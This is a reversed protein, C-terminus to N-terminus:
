TGFILSCGRVIRSYCWQEYEAEADKIVQGFYVKGTAYFGRLVELKKDFLYKIDM